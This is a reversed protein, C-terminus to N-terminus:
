FDECWHFTDAEDNSSSFPRRWRSCEIFSDSLSSQTILAVHDFDEFHETVWTCLSFTASSVLFNEEKRSNRYGKKEAILAGKMMEQAKGGKM